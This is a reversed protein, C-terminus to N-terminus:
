DVQQIPRVTVENIDVSDPQDIAYAVARAIADPPLHFKVTTSVETRVAGPYIITSRIPPGLEIRVGESIMRLAAKTTAYVVGRPLAKFSLISAINVIHGSGQRLMHPAVAAVGYLPGKINTDIQRDWSDTDGDALASFKTDAANNVLVDIRGFVDIARQVLGFVDARRSVDTVAYAADGGMARIEACLEILREERRAGVALKAGAAALHLATARGIGSSAGTVVVIKGAIFGNMRVSRLRLSRRKRWKNNHFCNVGIITDINVSYMLIIKIM